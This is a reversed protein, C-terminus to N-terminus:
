AAGALFGEQYDDTQTEPLDSEARVTALLSLQQARTLPVEKQRYTRGALFGMGWPHRIWTLYETHWLALSELAQQKVQEATVPPEGADAYQRNEMQAWLEPLEYVIVHLDCDEEYALSSGYPKGVALAAPSLFRSAQRKTVLVGGHSATEVLVMGDTIPYSHQSLGWPTKM